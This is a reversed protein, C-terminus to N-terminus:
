HMHKVAQLRGGRVQLIVAHANPGEREISVVDRHRNSGAQDVVQTATVIALNELQDRYHAAAEYEQHESAEEMQRRLERELADSKGELVSIVERIQARYDEASILGVCSGTCRGMQHL